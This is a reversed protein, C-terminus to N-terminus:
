AALAPARHRAVGEQIITRLQAASARIHFHKEFCDVARDAIAGRAAEDRTVWGRILEITGELTDRAVLGAGAAEIERYINVQDSILVPLGLALAEAVVIGFNEQHSPLIFADSAHYAGWKTAGTLMGTWTIRDAVGLGAAMARLSRGWDEDDPGAMVLQLDHEAATAALARVLLDCGKKPHIRSLYLLLRKGELAPFADLFARRDGHGDTKPPEIGFGAVAENARYLWFSERALLREQECTFLVNTADRLVRYEAWPWYLWKKAHKLPYTRRFWPDLMGHPFVFYPVQLGRLAKWTALGHYQWLGHVVVADFRPANARIWGVATPAHGYSGRAPGLAALPAPFPPTSDLMSPHDLSAVESPWGAREMELVIQKLGEQPGGGRPDVSRIVHLLKM